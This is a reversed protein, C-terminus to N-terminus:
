EHLKEGLIRAIYCLLTSVNRFPGNEQSLAEEDVLSIAIGFEEEINQETSVILNVLGLSDLKGSEDLLVTHTSKELRQERPLQQNVEDIASFIAKVVREDTTMAQHGGKEPVSTGLIWRSLGPM